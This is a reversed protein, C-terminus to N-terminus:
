IERFLPNKRCVQTKTIFTNDRFQKCKLEYTGPDVDLAGTIEVDGVNTDSKFLACSDARKASWTANCTTNTIKPDMEFILEGPRFLGFEDYDEILKNIDMNLTGDANIVDNPTIQPVTSTAGPRLPSPYICDSIEDQFLIPASTLGQNDETTVRIAKRGPSSWVHPITQESGSEYYGSAPMIQDTTGDNNWDLLFRVKNEDPKTDPDTASVIYSSISGIACANRRIAPSAPPKGTPAFVHIPCNITKAGIDVKKSGTRLSVLPERSTFCSGGIKAASWFKGYTGGFNFKANITTTRTEKCTANGNGQKNCSASLGSISKNPPNVSFDAFMGGSLGGGGNTNRSQYANKGVCVSGGSKNGGNNWNGYPSDFVTGTGFWAIDTYVHPLFEFRINTGGRVTSGCALVAGTDLNVVRAKYLVQISPWDLTWQGGYFNYLSERLQKTWLTSEAEVNNQPFLCFLFVVIIGVIIKKNNLHSIM